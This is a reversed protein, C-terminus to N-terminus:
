RPVHRSRHSPLAAARGAVAKPEEEEEMRRKVPATPDGPGSRPSSPLLCWGQLWARHSLGPSPQPSGPQHPCQPGSFLTSFIVASPITKLLPLCILDQKESIKKEVTRQEM